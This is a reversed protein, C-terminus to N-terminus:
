DPKSGDDPTAVTQTADILVQRSRSNFERQWITVITALSTVILGWPGLLWGLAGLSFYVSRLGRNFAKAAEINLEAATTARIAADPHDPDNPVAGMMVSCYGFVRHSWVFKMFANTILLLPLLIKIELFLTTTPTLMLDEAVKALRDTNGILALGGGLAILCASAFFATGERLNGLLMADSVRPERRIYNMMWDRRYHGMLRHVSPCRTSSHEVWWGLVAWSILLGSAAFVDLLSMAPLQTLIDM